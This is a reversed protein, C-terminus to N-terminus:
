STTDVHHDRFYLPTASLAPFQRFQFVRARKSTSSANNAYSVPSFTTHLWTSLLHPRMPATTFSSALDGPAITHRGHVGNLQMEQAQPAAPSNLREALVAESFNGTCSGTRNLQGILAQFQKKRKRFRGLPGDWNGSGYSEFTFARNSLVLCPLRLFVITLVLIFRHLAFHSLRWGIIM